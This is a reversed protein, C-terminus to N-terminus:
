GHAAGPFYWVTEGAGSYGTSETKREVREYRELETMDRYVTANSIRFMVVMDYVGLEEGDRLRDLIVELREKKCTKKAM